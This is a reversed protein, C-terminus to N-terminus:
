EMLLNIGLRGELLLKLLVKLLPLLLQSLPLPLQLVWL